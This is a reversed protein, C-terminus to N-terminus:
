FMDHKWGTSNGIVDELMAIERSLERALNIMLLCFDDPFDQHLIFFQDTFVHLVISDTAAVENGSNPILGIMTDFGIQEGARFHRTLVDHVECHKYFAIDGQLVINFGSVLEEYANLVEGQKLSVVKGKTILDTIAAESLAGFSALERLGTYGFVNLIEKADLQQM